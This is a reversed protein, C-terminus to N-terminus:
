AKKRKKFRLEAVSRAIGTMNSDMRELTKSMKFVQVIAGIVVGICVLALVFFTVVLVEELMMNM